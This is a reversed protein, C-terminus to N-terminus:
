IKQEFELKTVGVRLINLSSMQVLSEEKVITEEVGRSKLIFVYRANGASGYDNRQLASVAPSADMTRDIHHPLDMM